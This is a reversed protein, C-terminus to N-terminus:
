LPHTLNISTLCDILAERYHRLPHLKTSLLSANAPRRAPQDLDPSGIPEIPVDSMGAAQCIERALDFRSVAGANTVHFLGTARRQALAWLADALDPAYTPSGRQDDVVRLSGRDKAARLISRVFNHGWPAFTWATRVITHEPLAKAVLREGELKTAGYVSVPSPEDDETYPSGKRGDFVFDTSIHVMRASHAACAEAVLEAALANVLLSTDPDLECGDVDTMAACHFVLEPRCEAFCRRVAQGDTVDVEGVDVALVEAEGRLRRVLARGLMGKGGTVLVQM